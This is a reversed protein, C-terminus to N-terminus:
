VTPSPTLPGKGTNYCASCFTTTSSWHLSYLFKMKPTGCPLANPGKNKAAGISYSRGRRPARTTTTTIKLKKEFVVRVKKKLNQSYSKFAM